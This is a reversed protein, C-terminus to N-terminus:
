RGICFNALIPGGICFVGFYTGGRICFLGLIQGRYMKKGGICSFSM